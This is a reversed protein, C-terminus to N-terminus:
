VLLHEFLCAFQCALLACLWGFACDYLNVFCSCDCVCVCVFVRIRFCVFLVSLSACLCDLVCVSVWKFVYAFMHVFVLSYLFVCDCVHSRVFFLGM